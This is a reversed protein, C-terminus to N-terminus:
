GISPPKGLDTNRNRCVPALLYQQSRDIGQAVLCRPESFDQHHILCRFVPRADSCLKAVPVSGSHDTPNMQTLRGRGSRHISRELHRLV